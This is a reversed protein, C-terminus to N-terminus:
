LYEGVKLQLYGAENWFFLKLLTKYRLEDKEVPVKLWQM